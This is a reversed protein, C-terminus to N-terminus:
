TKKKDFIWIGTYEKIERIKKVKIENKMADGFFEGIVRAAEEYNDFLYNTEIISENFGYERLKEYFRVLSEGPPNPSDVNTGMTEIFIVKEKSIRVSEKILRDIWIEKDCLEEVILHGFSWGEIVIDYEKEISNIDRNDRICFEIKKLWRSLNIKAKEIMHMSNDFLTAKDIEDVYIKTIRGTGVGFECVTKDSWIINKKLFVSLNYKYDEHNVLEDYLDAHQQYVEFM